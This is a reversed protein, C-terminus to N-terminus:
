RFLIAAAERAPGSATPPKMVGFRAKTVPKSDPTQSSQLIAPIRM